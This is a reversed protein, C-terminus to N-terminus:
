IYNNYIARKEFRMVISIYLQQAKLPSTPSPVGWLVDLNSLSFSLSKILSLTARPIPDHM